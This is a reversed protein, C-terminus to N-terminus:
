ELGLKKIGSAAPENQTKAVDLVSAFCAIRCASFYDM